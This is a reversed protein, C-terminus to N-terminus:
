LIRETYKESVKKEELFKDTNKTILLISKDSDKAKDKIEKFIEIIEGEKKIIKKAWNVIDNDGELELLGTLRIDMLGFIEAWIQEVAKYPEVVKEDITYQIAYHCFNFNKVRVAVITDSNIRKEKTVKKTNWDFELETYGGNQNAIGNTTNLLLVLFSFIFLYKKKM